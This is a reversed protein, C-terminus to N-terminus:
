RRSRGTRGAPPGRPAARFARRTWSAPKLQGAARLAREAPATSYPASGAAAGNAATGGGGGERAVSLGSRDWALLGGDPRGAGTVEYWGVARHRRHDAVARVVASGDGSAARVTIESPSVRYTHFRALAMRQPEDASLPRPGPDGGGTLLLGGGCVEMTLVGAAWWTRRVRRTKETTGSRIRRM